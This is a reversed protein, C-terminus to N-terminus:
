TIREMDIKVKIEQAALFQKRLQYRSWHVEPEPQSLDKVEAEIGEIWMQLIDGLYQAQNDSLELNVM